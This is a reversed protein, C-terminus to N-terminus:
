LHYLQPFFKPRRVQLWKGMVCFSGGTGAVWEGREETARCGRQYLLVSSVGLMEATHGTRASHLSSALVWLSHPSPRLFNLFSRSCQSLHPTNTLSSFFSVHYLFFWILSFPGERYNHCSGVYFNFYNTHILVLATTLSSIACVAHSPGSIIM